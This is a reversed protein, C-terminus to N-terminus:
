AAESQEPPPSPFCREHGCPCLWVRYGAQAEMGTEAPGIDAMARGCWDCIPACEREARRILGLEAALFMATWVRPIELGTEHAMQAPSQQGHEYLYGIVRLMVAWQKGTVQCDSPMWPLYPVTYFTESM